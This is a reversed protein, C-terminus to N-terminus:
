PRPAPTPRPRPTPATRPTPTPRPTSTPTATPTATGTPTATPTPTPTPSGCPPAPPEPADLFIAVTDSLAAVVALDPTGNLDFDGVAVTHPDDDTHYNVSPAFGGQGDGLLVSMTTGSGGLGANATALDLNGDGDFDAASIQWPAEPVPFDVKPQFTGDGNGLLVSVDNEGSNAVALDLKSDHNYDAIAIYNPSSGAQYFVAPQFTGDGNGLLIAINNGTTSDAV